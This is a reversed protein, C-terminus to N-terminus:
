VNEIQTRIWPPGPTQVKPGYHLSKLMPGLAQGGGRPGGAWKARLGLNSGGEVGSRNVLTFYM